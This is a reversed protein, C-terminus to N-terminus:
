KGVTISEWLFWRGRRMPLRKIRGSGSGAIVVVIVIIATKILVTQITRTCATM